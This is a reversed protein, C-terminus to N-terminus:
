KQCQAFAKSITLDLDAIADNDVPPILCYVVNKVMKRELVPPTLSLIESSMTINGQQFYVWAMVCYNTKLCNISSNIIPDGSLSSNNTLYVSLLAIKSALSRFIESNESHNASDISDSQNLDEPNQAFSLLYVLYGSLLIHVAEEKQDKPIDEFKVDFFSHIVSTVVSFNDQLKTASFFVAWLHAVERMSNYSISQSCYKIFAETFCHLHGHYHESEPSPVTEALRFLCPTVTNTNCEKITVKWRDLAIKECSTSNLVIQYLVIWQYFFGYLVAVLAIVASESTNAAASLICIITSCIHAVSCAHYSSFKHRLLEGYSLGLMQEDLSKYVWGILITSFGVVKIAELITPAQLYIPCVCGSLFTEIISRKFAIEMGWSYLLIALLLFYPIFWRSFHICVFTHISKRLKNFFSLFRKLLGVFWM